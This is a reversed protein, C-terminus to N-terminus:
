GDTPEIGFFFERGQRFPEVLEFNEFSTGGPIASTSAWYARRGNVLAQLQPDPAEVRWRQLARRGYYRWHEATGDAYVATLPDAEDPTAWVTAGGDTTRTLEDLGFRAHPTFHDGAFDSWLAAPGVVRDALHLDRLLAFNGMTATLVCHELPVADSRRYAALGVEHPRDARFSLRLYVDAGNEFPEVIVFVRLHEVGGVTEVVGPAADTAARPRVDAPDDASWFRKGPVGDLRSPELESYGRATSGAPVPEVAVFNVVRDVAHGLYPAYIRLLGRPGRLPHLGVQLGDAHGWRPEAPAAGSPRLWLDRAVPPHLGPPADSLPPPRHDDPSM